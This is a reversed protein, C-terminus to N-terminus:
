QQCVMLSTCPSRSGGSISNVGRLNSIPHGPLIVQHKHSEPGAVGKYPLLHMVSEIPLLMAVSNIANGIIATSATLSLRSIGSRGAEEEELSADVSMNKGDKNSQQNSSQYGVYSISVTVAQQWLETLGYMGDWTLSPEVATNAMVVNTGIVPDGGGATVKGKISFNTTGDITRFACCVWLVLWSFHLNKRMCISKFKTILAGFSFM